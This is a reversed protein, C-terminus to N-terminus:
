VATVLRRKLEVYVTVTFLVHACKRMWMDCVFNTYKMKIVNKYIISIRLLTYTYVLAECVLMEM